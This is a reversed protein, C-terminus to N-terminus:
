LLHKQIEDHIGFVRHDLRMSFSQQADYATAFLSLNQDEKGVISGSNRFLIQMANKFREKRRLRYAFTGSEAETNALSDDNLMPTLDVDLARDGAAGREDDLKGNLFPGGM